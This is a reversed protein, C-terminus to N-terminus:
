ASSIDSADAMNIPQVAIPRRNAMRASPCTGRRWAKLLEATDNVADPYQDKERLDERFLREIRVCELSPRQTKM